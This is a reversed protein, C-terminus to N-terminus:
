KKKPADLTSVPIVTPGSIAQQVDHYITDEGFEQKLEYARMLINMQDSEVQITSIYQKSLNAITQSKDIYEKLTEGKLDGDNLTNM